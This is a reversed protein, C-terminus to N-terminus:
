LRGSARVGYYRTLINRRLRQWGSVHAVSDSHGIHSCFGNALHATSLGHAKFHESLMGESTYRSYPGHEAWTSRRVLSPNFTYSGFRSKRRAIPFWYSIGDAYRTVTGPACRKKVLSVVSVGPDHDLIKAADTVVDTPDFLWDDECHMILPTKVRSYMADIAVHQLRKAPSRVLTAGPCLERFIASSEADGFDNVGLIEDFSNFPLLSQLTERLLAPRRGFTLCLTVPLM